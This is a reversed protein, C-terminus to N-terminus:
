YEDSDGELLKLSNSTHYNSNKDVRHIMVSEQNDGVGLLLMASDFLKDVIYKDGKLRYNVLNKNSSSDLVVLVPAEQVTISKPMQIFTKIGDNYVRIPKWKVDGDIDYNFNLNNIDVKSQPSKEFSNLKKYRNAKKMKYKKYNILSNKLSSNYTFNVIPTWVYKKSVLKLNYTRKNTFIILNTSLGLDLPKVIIHVIENKGTGSVDTSFNWRATDGAQISKLEEGAELQIDTIKLPSCIVSPMTAGYLFTIRGDRGRMSTVNHNLWKKAQKVSEWERRDLQYSDESFYSNDALLQSSIIIYILLLFKRM